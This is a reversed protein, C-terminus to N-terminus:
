GEAKHLTLQPFPITWGHENCADVASKQLLRNLTEYKSAVGGKIDAIIELDLSSEGAECFEVKIHQIDEEGIVTLLGRRVAACLAEPIETTVKAQLGYDVGFVTRVRFNRSIVEPALALFDTTVYSKRSGGLLVLHVMEPSQSVVKGRTEDSLIVWEGEECPFWPEDARYPRSHLDPLSRIPLRMEGGALLPNGLKTFVGLSDVRWPIGDVVVREGERVEGLNLLVRAQEYVKPLADKAALVLGFLFIIALGLLVWDGTAYLVLIAAVLAGVFTFTHLVVDILRSYFSRGGDQHWPSVRYLYRLLLRLLLFVGVFTAVTVLLYKGRTQVFRKLGDTVTDFTSHEEDLSQDLQSRAASIRTTANQLFGEWQLRTKKLEAVVGPVAERALAADLNKLASTATAAQKTSHEIEDRLGEIARPRETAQKLEEVLPKLLDQFEQAIDFEKRQRLGFGEVDVGTAIAHFDLEFGHLKQEAKDLKFGVETKESETTARDLSKRFEAIEAKTIAMSEQLAVLPPRPQPPEAEQALLAM